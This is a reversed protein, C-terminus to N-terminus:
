FLLKKDLCLNCRKSGGTYSISKKIISWKINFDTKNQKLHWVHKSILNRKTKVNKTNKIWSTKAHKEMPKREFNVSTKHKNQIFNQIECVLVLVNIQM